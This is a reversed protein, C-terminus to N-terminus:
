LFLAFKIYEGLSDSILYSGVDYHPNAPNVTEVLQQELYQMIIDRYLSRVAKETELNSIRRTLEEREQAWKIRELDFRCILHLKFNVSEHFKDAIFKIVGTLTYNEINIEEM